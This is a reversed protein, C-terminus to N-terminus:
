ADVRYDMATHEGRGEGQSTVVQYLQSGRGVGLIPSISPMHNGETTRPPRRGYRGGLETPQPMLVPGVDM